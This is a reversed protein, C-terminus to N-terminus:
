RKMVVEKEKDTNLEKAYGYDFEVQGGAMQLELVKPCTLCYEFERLACKGCDQDHISM